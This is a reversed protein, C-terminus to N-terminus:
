GSKPADLASSEDRRPTIRVAGGGDNELDGRIKLREVARDLWATGLKTEDSLQDMTLAGHPRLARLVQEEREHTEGFKRSGIVTM